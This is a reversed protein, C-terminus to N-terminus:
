WESSDTLQLGCRVRLASPDLPEGHGSKTTEFAKWGKHLGQQHDGPAVECPRRAVWAAFYCKMRAYRGCEAAQNALRRLLAIIKMTCWTGQSIWPKRGKVGFFEQAQQLLFISFAEAHDSVSNGPKPAFTWLRRQFEVCLYQNQMSSTDINSKIKRQNKEAGIEDKVEILCKVCRRHWIWPIPSVM